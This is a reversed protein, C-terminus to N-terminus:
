RRSLFQPPAMRVTDMQLECQRRLDEIAAAQEIRGRWRLLNVATRYAPELNADIRGAAGRLISEVLRDAIEAPPGEVTVVQAKGFAVSSPSQVVSEADVLVMRVPRESPQASLLSTVPKSDIGYARLAAELIPTGLLACNATGGTEQVYAAIRQWPYRHQEARADTLAVLSVMALLLVGARAYGLRSTSTAFLGDVMLILLWPLGAILFRAYAWPFHSVGSASLAAVLSIVALLLWQTERREHCVRWAAYLVAAVAVVSPLGRGFYSRFVQPLFGLPTPPTDSWQARVRAIDAAQPWYAAVALCTAAGLPLALRTLARYWTSDGEIARRVSWGVALVVIAGVSYIANLHALLGLLTAGACLWGDRWRGSRRWDLLFLLMAASFAALFIYSRITVSYRVLLPNVATLLSAAIAEEHRCEFRLAIGAVLEVLCVGAAIGPAVLLWNEADFGDHLMKLGAIYFNMSIWEGFHTLLFHYSSRLAIITGWEDGWWSRDCHFYICLVAHLVGVALLPVWLPAHREQHPSEPM